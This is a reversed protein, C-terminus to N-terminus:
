WSTLGTDALAEDLTMRYRDAPREIGLEERLWTWGAPSLTWWAPCHYRQTLPVTHRPNWRILGRNELAAVTGAGPAAWVRGDRAYWTVADEMTPSMRIKM